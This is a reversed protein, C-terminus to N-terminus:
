LIDYKTLMGRINDPMKIAQGSHKDICVQVSHARSFSTVGDESNLEYQMQFSKTGLSITKISCVVKSEPVIPILFDIDFHAVVNSVDKLTWGLDYFYHLRAVEYYTVYNANNLHGLMDFDAYRPQIPISFKYDTM